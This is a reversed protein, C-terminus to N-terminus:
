TRVMKYTDACQIKCMGEFHEKNILPLKSPRGGLNKKVVKKEAM